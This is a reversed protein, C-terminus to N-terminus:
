VSKREGQEDKMAQIFDKYYDCEQRCIHNPTTHPYHGCVKCYADCAKEIVEERAIEVAKRAQAPTLWPFYSDGDNKDGYANSCNRAHEKIFENAKSM